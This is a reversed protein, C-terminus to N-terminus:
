CRLALLQPLELGSEVRDCEGLRDVALELEDAPLQLFPPTAIGCLGDADALGRRHAAPSAERGRGTDKIISDVPLDFLADPLVALEDTGHLLM